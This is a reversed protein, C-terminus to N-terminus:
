LESSLRRRSLGRPTSGTEGPSPVFAEEVLGYDALFVPSAQSVTPDPPWDYFRETRVRTYPVVVERPELLVKSARHYTAACFAPRPPLPRASERELSEQKKIRRKERMKALKNKIRRRRGAKKQPAEDATSADLAATESTSGPTGDSSAESDVSPAEESPVTISDEDKISSTDVGEEITQKEEEKKAEAAKYM